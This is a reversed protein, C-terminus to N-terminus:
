DSFSGELIHESSIQNDDSESTLVFFNYETLDLQSRFAIVFQDDHKAVEGVSMVKLPESRNVIWGEYHSDEPLEPLNGMKAVLTFQGKEFQSFALGFSGGETVDALAASNWEKFDKKMLEDLVAINKGQTSQLSMPNLMAEIERENMILGNRRAEALIEGRDIQVSGEDTPAQKAACGWGTFILTIFLLYISKYM